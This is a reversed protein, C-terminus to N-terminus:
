ESDPLPLSSVREPEPESESEPEADPEESPLPEWLESSDPEAPVPALESARRRRPRSSASPQSLVM